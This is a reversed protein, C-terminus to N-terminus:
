VFNILLLGTFVAYYLKNVFLRNISDRVVSDQQRICVLLYITQTIIMPALFRLFDGSIITSLIQPIITLMFLIYPLKSMFTDSKRICSIWVLAFMVLFPITFILAIWDTESLGDCAYDIVYKMYVWLNEIYPSGSIQDPDNFYLYYELYGSVEGVTCNGKEALYSLMEPYSMKLTKTSFAVSYVSLAACSVSSAAFVSSFYIRNKQSTLAYYAIIGLCPSMYALIYCDHLLVGLALIVPLSLSLLKNKGIFATLVFIMLLFIDAFSFFEGLYVSVSSPLTIFIVLLLCLPKKDEKSASTYTHGLFISVFYLIVFTCIAAFAQVWERTFSDKFFSLVEGILLRSCVGISFDGLYMSYLTGIGLDMSTLASYILMAAFIFSSTGITLFFKKRQM